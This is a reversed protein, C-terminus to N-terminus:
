LEGGFSAEYADLWANFEKEYEAWDQQNAMGCAVWEEKSVLPVKRLVDRSGFDLERIAISKEFETQAWAKVKGM